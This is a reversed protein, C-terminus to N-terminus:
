LYGSYTEIVRGPEENTNNDNYEIIEQIHTIHMRLNMNTYITLLNTPQTAM